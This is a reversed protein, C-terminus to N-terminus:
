DTHGGVQMVTLTGGDGEPEVLFTAREGSCIRVQYQTKLLRKYGMNKERDVQGVEAAAESPHMGDHVIHGIFLNWNKRGQPPVLSIKKYARPGNVVVWPM